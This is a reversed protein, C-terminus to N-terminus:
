QEYLSEPLNKYIRFVKDMRILEFLNLIDKNLHMVSIDAEKSMAYKLASVLAGLFSSDVYDVLAFDVIIHKHGEDVISMIKSKFTEAETLNAEKVQVQAILYENFEKAQIIM